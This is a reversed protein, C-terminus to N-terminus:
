EVNLIHVLSGAHLPSNQGKVIIDVKFSKKHGSNDGLIYSKQKNAFKQHPSHTEKTRGGKLFPIIHSEWLIKQCFCGNCFLDYIYPFNFSLVTFSHIWSAHTGEEMEELSEMGLGLHPVFMVCVWFPSCVLIILEPLKLGPLIGDHQTILRKIAVTELSKIEWTFYNDMIFTQWM